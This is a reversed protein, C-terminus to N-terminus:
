PCEPLSLLNNPSYGDATTKLYKRGNHKEVVVDVAHGNVSVYFHEKRDEILRIADDESYSWTGGGPNKGGIASIREHADEHNGRKKICTVQKAMDISKTM